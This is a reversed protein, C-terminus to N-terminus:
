KAIGYFKALRQLGLSIMTVGSAKASKPSRYGQISRGVQEAPIDNIVLWHIAKRVGLDDLLRNAQAYRKAHFVRREAADMTSDSSGLGSIYESWRMTVSRGAQLCLYWDAYFKLGADYQEDTVRRNRHLNELQSWVRVAGSKRVTGGDATETLEDLNQGAMRMRQPTPALTTTAQPQRKRRTRTM